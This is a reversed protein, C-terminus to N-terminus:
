LGDCDLLRAGPEAGTLAFFFPDGVDDLADALFAPTVNFVDAARAVTRPAGDMPQVHFWVQVARVLDLRTLGTGDEDREDTIWDDAPKGNSSMDRM